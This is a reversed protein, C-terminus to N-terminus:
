HREGGRQLVAIGAASALPQSTAVIGNPAYVPSRGALTLPRQAVLAIPLLSLAAVRAVISAPSLM